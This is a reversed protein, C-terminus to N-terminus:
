MPIEAAATVRLGGWGAERYTWYQQRILLSLPGPRDGPFPRNEIARVPIIGGATSTLFAEDCARLDAASYDGIEVAIGLEAALDIVAARTIGELVNRAPTFLRGNRAFFVNFGAGESVFGDLSLHVAADAGVERAEFRGRVLDGWHFNKAISPVCASPIRPTAAIMLTVGRDQETPSAIWVYPIAYAILSARTRFLDRRRRAEEDLYDGRTAVVGVYAAEEVGGELVCRALVRRLDLASLACSLQWHRCSEFFRTIHDDLRFFRGKWVSIVDYVADGHTFGQDFISIRAEAPASYCGNVYALGVAM